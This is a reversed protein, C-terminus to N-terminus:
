LVYVYVCGLGLWEDGVLEMGGGGGVCRREGGRGVDMNVVGGEGM